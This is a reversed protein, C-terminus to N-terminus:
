LSRKFVASIISFLFFVFVGPLLLSFSFLGILRRGFSMPSSNVCDVIKEAFRQWYFNAALASMSDRMGSVRNPDFSLNVLEESLEYKSVVVGAGSLKLRSGWEDDDNQVIPLNLTLCDFNRTRSAYDNEYGEGGWVLSIDFGAWYDFRRSFDLWPLFIINTRAAEEVSALLETEQQKDVGFFVLKIKRNKKISKSVEALVGKLDFWGYTGGLWGVLFDDSEIAGHALDAMLKRGAERSLKQPEACGFPVVRIRSFERTLAIPAIMGRMLDSQRRNAVITLNFVLVAFLSRLVNFYSKVLLKVRVIRSGGSNIEDLEIWHPVYNDLVIRRGLFGSLIAFSLVVPGGGHIVIVDSRLCAKLLGWFSAVPVFNVNAPIVGDSYARGCIYVEHGKDVLKAALATYRMEPGRLAAGFAGKYLLIFRM